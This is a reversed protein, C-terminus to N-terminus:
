PCWKEVHCTTIFYPNSSSDKPYFSIGSGVQALFFDSIFEWCTFPSPLIM